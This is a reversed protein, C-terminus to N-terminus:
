YDMLEVLRRYSEDLDQPSANSRSLGKSSLLDFVKRIRPRTLQPVPVDRGREKEKAAHLAALRVVPVRPDSCSVYDMGIKDCFAIAAPHGGHEGCIGVLLDAKVKRGWQVALEMLKGVGKEDLVEFATRLVVSETYLPLFKNEADERSFSFAAETLDGLVFATGFSFFESEEALTEARMCARVKRLM